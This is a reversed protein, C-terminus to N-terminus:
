QAAKASIEGNGIRTMEYLAICYLYFCHGGNKKRKGWILSTSLSQVGPRAPIVKHLPVIVSRSIGTGLEPESATLSILVSKLRLLAAFFGTNLDLMCVTTSKNQISVFRSSQISLVHYM